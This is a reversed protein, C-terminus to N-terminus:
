RVTAAWDDDARVDLLYIGSRLQNTTTTDGDEVTYRAAVSGSVDILRVALEDGDVKWDIAVSGDDVDFPGSAADGSASVSTPLSPAEVYNPQAWRVGWTGDANINLRYRGEDLVMARSGSYRGEGRVLEGGYDRDDDDDDDNDDDDEYLDEIRRGRGDLVEATFEEDGAHALRIVALGGQHYVVSTFAEGTGTLAISDPEDGRRVARDDDPLAPATPRGDAATPSPSPSPSPTAPTPTPTAEPTPTPTPEGTPLPAPTPDLVGLSPEDEDVLFLFGITGVLIALVIVGALFPPEKWLPPRPPPGDVDEDAPHSM